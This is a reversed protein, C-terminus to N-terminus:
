KREYSAAQATKPDSLIATIFPNHARRDRNSVAAAIKDPTMNNRIEAKLLRYSTYIATLEKALLVSLRIDDNTPEKDAQIRRIETEWIPLLQEILDPITEQSLRKVTM